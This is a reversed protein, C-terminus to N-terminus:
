AFYAMTISDNDSYHLTIHQHAGGSLALPSTSIIDLFRFTVEDAHSGSPYYIDNGDGQSFVFTVKNSGYLDDDGKFGIIIDGPNVGNKGLKDAGDTGPIIAM